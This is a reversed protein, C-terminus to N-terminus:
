LGVKVIPSYVIKMTCSLSITLDNRSNDYTNAIRFFNWNFHNQIDHSPESSQIVPYDMTIVEGAVCGSIFTERDEIANHIKLDGDENIIIETHPYIFGEEYSDDNISHEGDLRDKKNDYVYFYGGKIGSNPYMNKNYSTVYKGTTKGQEYENAVNFKEWTYIKRAQVIITKPDKLAFPRNTFVEM